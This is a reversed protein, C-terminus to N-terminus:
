LVSETRQSRKKKRHRFAGTILVSVIMLFRFRFLFFPKVSFLSLLVSSLLIRCRCVAVCSLFFVRGQWAQDRSSARVGLYSFMVDGPLVVRFLPFRQKTSFFRLAALGFDTSDSLLSRLSSLAIFCQKALFFIIGHVTHCECATCDSSVGRARWMGWESCAPITPKSGFLSPEKQSCSLHVFSSRGLWM